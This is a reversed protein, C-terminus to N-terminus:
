IKQNIGYFSSTLIVSYEKLYALLGGPEPYIGVDHVALGIM